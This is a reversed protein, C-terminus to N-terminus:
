MGTPKFLGAYLLLFLIGGLIALFGLPASFTALKAQIGAAKEQAAGGGGGKFIYKAALSFGLMFGVLIMSPILILIMIAFMKWVKFYDGVHILEKVNIIGDIFMWIGIIGQYPAIKDLLQKADPKRAMIFGSAALLGGLIPTVCFYILYTISM